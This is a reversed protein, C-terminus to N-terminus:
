GYRTRSRGPTVTLSEIGYPRTNQVVTPLVDQNMADGRGLETSIKLLSPVAAPVTCTV